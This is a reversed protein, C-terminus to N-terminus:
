CFFDFINSFKTESFALFRYFLDVSKEYIACWQSYAFEIRNINRLHREM